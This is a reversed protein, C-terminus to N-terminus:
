LASAFLTFMKSYGRDWFDFSSGLAVDGVKENEM